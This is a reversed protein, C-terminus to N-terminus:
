GRDDRKELQLFAKILSRDGAKILATVEEGDQKCFVRLIEGEVAERVYHIDFERVRHTEWVKRPMADLLLRVYVANNLHHNMDTDLSRVTYDYALFEEGLAVKMRRCPEPVVPPLLDLDMPFPTTDLRRLTHDNVDIACLEQRCRLLPVGDLTEMLVNLHIAVPSVKVPFAKVRVRDMWVPCGEYFFKTRAVAWVAGHTKAMEIADCHYTHFLETMMDQILLSAQYPGTECFRDVYIASILQEKEYCNKM